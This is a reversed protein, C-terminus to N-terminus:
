SVLGSLTSLSVNRHHDILRCKENDIYYLETAKILDALVVQHEKKHAGEIIFVGTRQYRDLRREDGDHYTTGVFYTCWM